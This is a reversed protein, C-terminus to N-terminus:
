LLVSWCNALDDFGVFTKLVAQKEMLANRAQSAQDPAQSEPSLCWFELLLCELSFSVTLILSEFTM